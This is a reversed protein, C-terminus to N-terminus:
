EGKALKTEGLKWGLLLETGEDNYVMRDATSLMIPLGCGMGVDEGFSFYEDPTARFRRLMANGAFGM